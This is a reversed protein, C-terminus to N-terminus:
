RKAPSLGFTRSHLELSLPFHATVFAGDHGGPDLHYEHEIRRTELIEHLRRAGNYFGYHDEAGCDLYIRLGSLGATRALTLPNLRDFYAPNPPSGFVNGLLGLTGINTRGGGVIEVRPIKEMLAGMHSSVSGFLQPYAFAYRLAGYGGMSVGTIGRFARGPRTRYSRDVLPIFERIFFDEYRVRGDSSNVYFTRGGDPAVIVFEGIRGKERLYEVLSWGGLNILSQENDGLGHLFYLVPFRRTKEVDYSPPLFVCYRVARKLIQSSAARCEVRGAAEATSVVGLLLLTLCGFRVLLRKISDSM